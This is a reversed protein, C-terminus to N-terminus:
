GGGSVRNFWRRAPDEVFRYTLGSSAVVVAVLALALADEVWPGGLTIVNEGGIPSTIPLGLQAGVDYIAISFLSVYVAHTLYISYSITGLWLCPRRRLLWSLPGREFALILVV